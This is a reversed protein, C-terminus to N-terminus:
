TEEEQARQVREFAARGSREADLVGELIAVAAAQDIMSRGSRATHGAARLRAAATATTMREDALFVPVRVSAAILVARVRVAQAAIGDRGSLDRPLGVVLATPEYEDVLRRIETLPEPKAALTTVPYALLGERDCAAVGIRVNGLDLALRVGTPM